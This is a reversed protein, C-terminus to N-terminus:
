QNEEYKQKKKKLENHKSSKFKENRVQIGSENATTRGFLRPKEGSGRKSFSVM